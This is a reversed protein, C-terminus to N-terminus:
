GASDGGGGNAFDGFGADVEDGDAADGLVYAGDVEGHAELPFGLVDAHSKAPECPGHPPPGRLCRPFCNGEPKGEGWAKRAPGRLMVACFSSQRSAVKARWRMGLSELVRATPDPSGAPLQM